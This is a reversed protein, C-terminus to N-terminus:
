VALMVDVNLFASSLAPSISNMAGYGFGIAVMAPYLVAAGKFLALLLAAVGLTALIFVYRAM